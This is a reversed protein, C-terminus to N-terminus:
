NRADWAPDGALWQCAALHIDFDTMAVDGWNADGGWAIGIRGWQPTDVDVIVVAQAQEMYFEGTLGHPIGFRHCYVRWSYDEAPVDLITDKLDTATIQSPMADILTVANLDAM